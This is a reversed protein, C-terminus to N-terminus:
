LLVRPDRRQTKQGYNIPDQDDQTSRTDQAEHLRLEIERITGLEYDSIQELRLPSTDRGHSEFDENPNSM